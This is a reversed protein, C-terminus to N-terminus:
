LGTGADQCYVIIMSDLGSAYSFLGSGFSISVQGYASKSSIYGYQISAGDAVLGNGYVVLRKSLLPSVTIFRGLDYINHSADLFPGEVPTPARGCWDLNGPLTVYSLILEYLEKLNTGVKPRVLLETTPFCM